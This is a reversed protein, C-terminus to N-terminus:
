PVSRTRWPWTGLAIHVIQPWKREASFAGLLRDVFSGGDSLLKEFGVALSIPGDYFFLAMRRGSPLGIEYAMSPDIDQNSISHWAREGRKRVRKAQRPALIAFKLDMQAMLDLTELDVATEPIWMGEPRRGFRRSFDAIGWRIQTIKDRRNCLPLIAHNYAQALASGHGSFRERSERDAEIIRSYTPPNEVELWSLLTPGFDFSIGSYNNVIREILGNKDLIHSVGNPHYCEATVRRNWDHYPFASPQYEIAEIWPNERPPQYFHAHICIYNDL